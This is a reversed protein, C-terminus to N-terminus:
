SSGSINSVNKASWYIVLPHYPLRGCIDSCHEVFVMLCQLFKGHRLMGCTRFYEPLEEHFSLYGINM